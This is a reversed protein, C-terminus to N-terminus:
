CECGRSVKPMEIEGGITGWKYHLLVGSLWTLPMGVFVGRGLATSVHSFLSSKVFAVIVFSIWHLLMQIKTATSVDTMRTIVTYVTIINKYEASLIQM